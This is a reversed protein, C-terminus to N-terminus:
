RQYWQEEFVANDTIRLKPGGVHIWHAMAIVVDGTRGGWEEWFRGPDVNCTMITPLNHGYRYRMVDEIIEVRDNSYNEINFEDIMLIPARQFKQLMEDATIGETKGYRSQIERIMDRCRIYLCLEGYSLLENLIAASLGTKGTGYEGFLVLSNKEDRKREQEWTLGLIDYIERLNVVHGPRECFQKAAMLAVQKGEQQAETVDRYWTAFTFAKYQSPLEAREIRNHYARQQLGQGTSCDPCVITNPRMTGTADFTSEVWWGRDSCRECNFQPEDAIAGQTMKEVTEWDRTKLAHMMRLVDPHLGQTFDTQQIM